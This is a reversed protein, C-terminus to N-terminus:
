LPKKETQEKMFENTKRAFKKMHENALWILRMARRVDKPVDIGSVVLDRGDRMVSEYTFDINFLMNQYLRRLDANSIFKPERLKKPPLMEIEPEEFWGHRM